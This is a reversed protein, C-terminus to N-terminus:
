VTVAGAQAQQCKVAGQLIILLKLVVPAQDMGVGEGGLECWLCPCLCVMGGYSRLAEPQTHPLASDTLGGQTQMDVNMCATSALDQSGMCIPFLTAMQVMVIDMDM